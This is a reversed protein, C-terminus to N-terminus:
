EYAQTGIIFTSNKLGKNQFGITSPLIKRLALVLFPHWKKQIDLSFWAWAWAGAWARTRARMHVHVHTSRFEAMSDLCVCTPDGHMYGSGGGTKLMCMCM